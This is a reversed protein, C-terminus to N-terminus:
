NSLTAVAEDYNASTLSLGSLAEVATSELLSNLYLKDISSLTPNTHVSAEFTDWFTMWKTLDGNFRKLSLKPLKMLPTHSPLSTTVVGPVITHPFGLGEVNATGIVYPEAEPKDRDVIYSRKRAHVIPLVPETPASSWDAPDPTHFATQLSFDTQLTQVNCM